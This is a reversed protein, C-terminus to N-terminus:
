SSKSDFQRAQWAQFVSDNTAGMPTLRRKYPKMLYVDEKKSLAIHRRMPGSVNRGASLLFGVPAFALNKIYDIREFALAFAGLL